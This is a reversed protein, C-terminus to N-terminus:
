PSLQYYNGNKSIKGKEILSKLCIHIANSFWNEDEPDIMGLNAKLEESTIPKGINHFIQLLFNEWILQSQADDKYLFTPASLEVSQAILKYLVQVQAIYGNQKDKSTYDYILEIKDEDIKIEMPERYRPGDQFFRLLTDDGPTYTDVREFYADKILPDLKRGLAQTVAVYLPIGRYVHSAKLIRAINLIPDYTERTAYCDDILAIPETISNLIGHQELYKIMLLDGGEELIEKSIRRPLDMYIIKSPNIKYKTNLVKAIQFTKKMGGGIFVLKGGGFSNYNRLIYNVWELAKPLCKEAKDVAEVIEAKGESYDPFTNNLQYTLFSNWDPANVKIRRYIPSPSFPNITLILYFIFGLNLFKMNNGRRM